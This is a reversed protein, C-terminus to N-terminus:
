GTVGAGALAGRMINITYVPRSRPPAVFEFSFQGLGFDPDAVKASFKHMIGALVTVPDLFIRVPRGRTGVRYKEYYEMMKGIGTVGLDPIDVGPACVGPLLLGSITVPMVREAGVLYFYIRDRMTHNISLPSSGSIDFGTLICRQDVASGFIEVDSTGGIAIRIPLTPGGDMVGVVGPSSNFIFM